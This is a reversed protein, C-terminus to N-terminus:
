GAMTEGAAMAQTCEKLSLLKTHGAFPFGYAELARYIVASQCGFLRMALQLKEPVEFNM